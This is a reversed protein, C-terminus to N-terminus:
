KKPPPCDSSVTRVVKYYETTIYHGKYKCRSAQPFFITLAFMINLCIIIIKITYICKFSFLEFHIILFVFNHIYDYVMLM